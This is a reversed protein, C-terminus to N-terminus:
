ARPTAARAQSRVAANPAWPYPNGPSVPHAPAGRPLFTLEVHGDRGRGGRHRGSWALTGIRQHTPDRHRRIDAARPMPATTAIPDNVTAHLEVLAGAGDLEVDM